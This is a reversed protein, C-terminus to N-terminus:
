RGSGGASGPGEGPAALGGPGALPGADTVDLSSPRGFKEALFRGHAVLAEADSRCVADFIQDMTASLLDLQDVLVMLSTKGGEVPRRDAFSRPLRLYAGLAEPLYSTVTAMVSHADRSGGGLQDLRPITDRLTAVIRTVRSEVMGPVRGQIEPVIRDVAALLEPGTPVRPLIVAPEPTRRRGTLAAWADRLTAM